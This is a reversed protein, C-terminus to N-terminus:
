RLALANPPSAVGAQLNLPASTLLCTWRQDQTCAEALPGLDWMEGLPLGLLPLLSHHLFAEHMRDPDARREAREEPTLHGSLPCM